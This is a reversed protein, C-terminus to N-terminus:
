AIAHQHVDSNPSTAWWIAALLIIQLALRAALLTEPIAPFLQPILWMYINAPTVAITLIGLGIGAERRSERHMLGLAGVIEFFGSIYIAQLRLPWDPPIIKLFTEAAVFHGVGGVMFWLFVIVLAIKRYPM